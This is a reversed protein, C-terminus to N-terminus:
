TGIRFDLYFDHLKEILENTIPRFHDNTRYRGWANELPDDCTRHIRTLPSPTVIIGLRVISKKRSEQASDTGYRSYKHIM